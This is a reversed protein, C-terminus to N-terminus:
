RSRRFFKITGDSWSVEYEDGPQPYAILKDGERGCGNYPVDILNGPQSFDPYRPASEIQWNLKGNLGVLYINRKSNKADTTVVIGREPVAMFSEILDVFVYLEEWNQSKKILLRKGDARIKLKRQWEEANKIGLLLYSDKEYDPGKREWYTNTSPEFRLEIASDGELAVAQIHSNLLKTELSEENSNLSNVSNKLAPSQEIFYNNLEIFVPHTWKVLNIIQKRLELPFEAVKKRQIDKITSEILPGLGALDADNIHHRVLVLLESLTLSRNQKM